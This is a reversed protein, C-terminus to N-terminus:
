QAALAARPARLSNRAATGWSGDLKREAVTLEEETIHFVLFGHRAPISKLPNLGGVLHPPHYVDMEHWRYFSTEHAHGHLIAVVNYHRLLEYYQLRWEERWRDLSYPDFGFHHMLVVARGSRGVNKQLDMELFEMSGEPDSPAPGEATGPCLGCSVFHVGDWDWSYHLGNDSVGTLGTRKPNRERIGLRVCSGAEGDHNGFTEYVPWKLRGDGGLLGFDGVFLKWAREKASDTIDGLHLVGRPAGVAGGIEAPYALGPLQNMRDVLMSAAKDAAGSQGYHTDSVVFFTLDRPAAGISVVM